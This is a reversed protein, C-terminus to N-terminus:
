KKGWIYPLFPYFVSIKELYNDGLFASDSWKKVGLFGSDSWKKVGLLGSDSRKKDDLFHLWEMKHCGFTRLREMGLKLIGSGSRKTYIFVPAVGLWSFLWYEIIYQLIKLYILLVNLSQEEANKEAAEKHGRRQQIWGSQYSGSNLITALM